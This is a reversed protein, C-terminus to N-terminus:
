CERNKPPVRMTRYEGTASMTRNETDATDERAEPAVAAQREDWPVLMPAPDAVVVRAPVVMGRAEPSVCMVESATRHSRYGFLSSVFSYIQLTAAVAKSVVTAASAFVLVVKYVNRALSTAANVDAAVSKHTARVVASASSCATSIKKAVSKVVGIALVVSTSM